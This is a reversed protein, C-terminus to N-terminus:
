RALRRAAQLSAWAMGMMDLSAIDIAQSSQLYKQNRKVGIDWM